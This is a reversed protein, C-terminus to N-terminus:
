LPAAAVPVQLSSNHLMHGWSLQQLAQYNNTKLQLFPSSSTNQVDGLAHTLCNWTPLDGYLIQYVQYSECDLRSSFQKPKRLIQVMAEWGQHVM